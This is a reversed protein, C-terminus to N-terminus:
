SSVSVAVSAAIITVVIANATEIAKKAAKSAYNGKTIEEIRAKRETLKKKNFFLTLMSAEKLLAILISLTTDITDTDTFIAEEISAIIRKKPALNLAPYYIKNFFFFVKGKQATVLGKECLKQNSLKILSQM